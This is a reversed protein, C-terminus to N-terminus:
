INHIGYQSQEIKNKDINKTEAVIYLPRGKIENFMKYLYEGVVGMVMLQVSGLGLVLIVLTAWGAILPNPNLYHDIFVYAAFGISIAFVMMGVWFALRLPFASFSTLGSMILGLLKKATYKPQGHKRAEVIYPIYKKNFGIWQVMGRLFREKEPLRKLVNIVSRKYMAFDSVNKFELNTVASMFRYFTRGTMERVFSNQRNFLREGIVIDSGNEAHKIFEPILRPPHQLDGDMTMVLEGRATDMGASFAAQHGFNRSFRLVKIRSDKSALEALIDPTRDASGDDVFIIEYNKGFPSCVSYLEGMLVPLVEEENFVPIVLSLYVSKSAKKM